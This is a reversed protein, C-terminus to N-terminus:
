THSHPKLYSPDPIPILNSNPPPLYPFSTQSLLPWTHSHPKLYSPGPIPILNSIPPALYPILNLSLPHHKFTPPAPLYTTHNFPPLPWTHLMPSLHRKVIIISKAEKCSDVNEILYTLNHLCPFGTHHLLVKTRQSYTLIMCDAYTTHTHRTPMYTHMPTHTHTHPTHTHTCPHPMPTAHTHTYTHAHPKYVLTHM